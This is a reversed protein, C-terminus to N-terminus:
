WDLSQIHYIITKGNVEYFDIFCTFWEGSCDRGDCPAYVWNVKRYWEKDEESMIYNIIEKFYITDPCKNYIHIQPLASTVRAKRKCEKLLDSKYQDYIQRYKNYEPHHEGLKQMMENAFSMVERHVAYWKNM